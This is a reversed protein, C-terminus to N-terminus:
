QPKYVWWSQENVAYVPRYHHVREAPIVRNIQNDLLLIRGDLSVLTIAHGVGLNDDMVAVILLDDNEFGLARLTMFKVIAYDECDGAKQFFEGPTAWYDSVGWNVADETYQWRNAFANAKKIQTMRDRTRLSDILTMWETYPCRGQGAERCRVDQAEETRYRDLVTTWKPIPKFSSLQKGSLGFIPELGLPACLAPQPSVFVLALLALFMRAIPGMNHASYLRISSM